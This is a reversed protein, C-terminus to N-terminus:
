HIVGDLSGHIDLLCGGERGGKRRPGATDEEDTTADLEMNQPLQGLLRHV